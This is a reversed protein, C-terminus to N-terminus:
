VLKNLEAIIKDRWTNQNVLEKASYISISLKSALLDIQVQKNKPYATHLWAITDIIKDRSPMEALHKNDLEKIQEYIRVEPKDEPVDELQSIVAEGFTKYLMVLEDYSLVILISKDKTALQFQWYDGDQQKAVATLIDPPFFNAKNFQM